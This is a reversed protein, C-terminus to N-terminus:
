RRCGVAVTLWHWLWLQGSCLREMQDPGKECEVKKGDKVCM